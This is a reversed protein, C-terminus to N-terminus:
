GPDKGSPASPSVPNFFPCLLSVLFFSSFLVRLDTRTPSPPRTDGVRLFCRGARATARPPGPRIAAPTSSRRSRIVLSNPARISDKHTHTFSIQNLPQSLLSMKSPINVPPLPLCFHAKQTNSLKQIKIQTTTVYTCAYTFAQWSYVQAKYM